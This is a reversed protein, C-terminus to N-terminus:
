NAGIAIAVSVVAHGTTSVSACTATIRDGSRFSGRDGVANNAEGTSLAALTPRAAAQSWLSVGNILVDFVSNGGGTGATGCYVKVARIRGNFPALYPVGSTNLTQAATVAALSGAQITDVTVGAQARGGPM